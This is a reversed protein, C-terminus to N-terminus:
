ERGATDAWGNEFDRDKKNYQRITGDLLDIL